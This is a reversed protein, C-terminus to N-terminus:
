TPMTRSGLSCNQSYETSSRGVKIAKKSRGLTNYAKQGSLVSLLVFQGLRAIPVNIKGKVVNLAYGAM